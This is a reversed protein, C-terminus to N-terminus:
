AFSGVLQQGITDKYLKSQADKKDFYIPQIKLNQRLAITEQTLLTCWEISTIDGSSKGRLFDKWFLQLYEPLLFISAFVLAISFLNRKGNGIMFVQMRVEDIVTMHYGLIIHRVDHHEAGAMFDLHLRELYQAVDNGLSGLPMKQYDDLTYEWYKPPFFRKLLLPAVEELLWEVIAKRFKLTNIM